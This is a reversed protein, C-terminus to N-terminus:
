TGSPLLYRRRSRRCRTHSGAAWAGGVVAASRPAPTAMPLVAAPPDVVEGAVVESVARAMWSPLRPAVATLAGWEEETIRSRLLGIKGVHQPGLWALARIVAGARSHPLLTQWRPVHQIRIERRGFRLTRARGASIYTEIMPVQTTLGLTNAEAIGASVIPEGIEIELAKIVKESEPAAPGFRTVKSLVYRGRSVRILRGAKVLRSLAQDTAARTGGLHYLRKASLLSGEPLTEGHRIIREALM